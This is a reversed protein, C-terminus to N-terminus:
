MKSIRFSSVMALGMVLLLIIYFQVSMYPIIFYSTAVFVGAVTIPLGYFAGDFTQVNYRALRIAGALIYFIVMGIGLWLTDVLVSQYILFAPAVGFSILDSLSDLEKGFDSETHFRRAAAGDFRDCMAAIIIFIVAISPHGKFLFILSLIGFSLNILTLINALQEKLKCYYHHRISFM